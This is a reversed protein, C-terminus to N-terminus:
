LDVFLARAWRPALGTPQRRRQVGRSAEAASVDRVSVVPRGDESVFALWQGDPSMRADDESRSLSDGQGVPGPRALHEVCRWYCEHNTRQRHSLAADTVLRDARLVHGLM